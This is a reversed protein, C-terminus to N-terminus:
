GTSPAGCSASLYDMLQSYGDASLKLGKDQAHKKLKEAKVVPLQAGQAEVVARPHTFVVVARVPADIGKGALRQRLDDAASQAARTPDGLHEEVIWRLARGFGMRERWKGQTYSFVGELNVTEIVLAGSPTVLVHDAPLRPYHFLVHAESLSKLAHDLVAEPRPKKVWRNAFYIGTMSVALGIVMLISAAGALEQRWYPLLVSALLILLGGVAATNSLAARRKVKASDMVIKM